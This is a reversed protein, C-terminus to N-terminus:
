GPGHIMSAETGYIMGTYPNFDTGCHICHAFSEALIGSNFPSSVLEPEEGDRALFRPPQMRKQCDGEKCIPCAVNRFFAEEAKVEPTIIDEHGKLLERITDPDMTKLM